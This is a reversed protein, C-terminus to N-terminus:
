PLLNGGRLIAKVRAEVESWAGSHDPPDRIMWVGALAHGIEHVLTELDVAWAWGTSSCGAKPSCDMGNSGQACVRGIKCPEWVEVLCVYIPSERVREAAAEHDDLLGARMAEDLYLATVIDAFRVAEPRQLCPQTTNLTNTHIQTTSLGHYANTACAPLILSLGIAIACWLAYYLLDKAMM